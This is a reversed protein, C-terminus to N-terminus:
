QVGLYAALFEDWQTNAAFSLVRYYDFDNQPTDRIDLYQVRTPLHITIGRVANYQKVHWEFLVVENVADM